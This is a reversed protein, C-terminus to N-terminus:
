PFIDGRGCSPHSCSPRADAQRCERGDCCSPINESRLCDHMGPGAVVRCCPWIEGRHYENTVQITTASYKPLSEGRPFLDLYCYGVFRTEDRADKDWLAYAQVDSHWTEAEIAEFKIGLLNQYIELTSSVVTDAPFYEKVLSEDLSLSQEVFKRDYYWYDWIYFQGDFPLSLEKHEVAKLALLTEREKLALPRLRDIM